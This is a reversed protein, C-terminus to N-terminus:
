SYVRIAAEPHRKCEELLEELFGVFDEYTGWGNPADYQKFVDPSALLRQLGDELTQVIDGAVMGSHIGWLSQYLDAASAMRALNGTINGEWITNTTPIDVVFPTRGPFRREYEEPTVEIRRGNERIYIAQRAPRPDLGVLEISLSM